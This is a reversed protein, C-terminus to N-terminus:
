FQKMAIRIAEPSAGFHRSLKALDDGLLSRAAALAGDAFFLAAVFADAEREEVLEDELYFPDNRDRLKAPAFIDTHNSHLFYHGIEHLVTWRQRFI